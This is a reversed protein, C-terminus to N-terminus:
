IGVSRERSYMPDVNLTSETIKGVTRSDWIQLAIQMDFVTTKSHPFLVFNKSKRFSENSNKLTKKWRGNM